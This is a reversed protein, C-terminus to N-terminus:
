GKVLLVSAKVINILKEESNKGIITKWKIVEFIIMMCM